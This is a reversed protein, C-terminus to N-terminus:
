VAQLSDLWGVDRLLAEDLAKRVLKELSRRSKEDPALEPVAFIRVQRKETARHQTYEVLSGDEERWILAEEAQAERQNLELERGSYFPLNLFVHPFSEISDLAQKDANPKGPEAPADRIAVRDLQYRALLAENWMQVFAADRLLEFWTIAELRLKAPAGTYSSRLFLAWKDEWRLSAIGCERAAIQLEDHGVTPTPQRGLTLDDLKAQMKGLFKRVAPPLDESDKRAPTVQVGEIKALVRNNRVDLMLQRAYPPGLRSVLEDAQPETLLAFKSLVEDFQERRNAYGQVGMRQENPDMRCITAWLAHAVMEDLTLKAETEYTGKYLDSRTKILLQLDPERARQLTLRPAAHVADSSSSDLADVGLDNLINVAAARVPGHRRATEDFTGSSGLGLFHSDRVIWDLRDADVAACDVIQRLFLRTKWRPSARAAMPAAALWRLLEMVEDRDKPQCNGWKLLAPMSREIAGRVPSPKRNPYDALVRGLFYKDLKRGFGERSSLNNDNPIFFDKVLDLTHSYPLPLADHLFCFTLVALREVPTVSAESSNRGIAQLIAEAVHVTGCAHALRSHTADLNAIRYTTGLQKVDLLRMFVPQAMLINLLQDVAEHRVVTSYRLGHNPMPEKSMWPLLLYDLTAELQAPTPPQISNGSGKPPNWLVDRRELSSRAAQIRGASSKYKNPAM